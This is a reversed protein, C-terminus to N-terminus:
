TPSHTQLIEEEENPMTAMKRLRGLIKMEEMAIEPDDDVMIKMEEEKLRLVQIRSIKDKKREEEEEEEEDEEELKRITSKGRMRRQIVM